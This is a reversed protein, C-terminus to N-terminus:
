HPAEVLGSIEEVLAAEGDLDVTGDVSAAHEGAGSRIQALREGTILVIGRQALIPALVYASDIQVLPQADGRLAYTTCGSRLQFIEVPVIHGGWLAVLWRIPRSYALEPDAWRM